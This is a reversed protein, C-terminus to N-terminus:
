WRFGFGGSAHMRLAGSCFPANWEGEGPYEAAQASLFPSAIAGCSTFRLRALSRRLEARSVGCCAAPLEM